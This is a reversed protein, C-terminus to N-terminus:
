RRASLVHLVSQAGHMCRPSASRHWRAPTPSPLATRARTRTCHLRRVEEDIEVPGARVVLQKRRQRGSSKVAQPRGGRAPGGARRACRTHNTCTPRGLYPPRTPEIEDGFAFRADAPFPWSWGGHECRYSASSSSSSPSCTGVRGAAQACPASRTTTPNRGGSLSLCDPPTWRPVVVQQM